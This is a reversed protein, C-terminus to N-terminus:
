HKVQRKLDEQCAEFYGTLDDMINELMKHRDNSSIASDTMSKLMMSFVVDAGLVFYNLAVSKIFDEDGRTDKWIAESVACLDGWKKSIPNNDFILSTIYDDAAKKDM